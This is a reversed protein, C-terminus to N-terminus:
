EHRQRLRGLAGCGDSREISRRSSTRLSFPDWACTESDRVFRALRPVSDFAASCRFSAVRVSSVIATVGASAWAVSSWCGVPCGARKSSEDDEDVALETTCGEQNTPTKPLQHRPPANGEVAKHERLFLVAADEDHAGKLLGRLKITLARRRQVARHRRHEGRSVDDLM